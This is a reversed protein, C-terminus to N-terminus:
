SKLCCTKMKIGEWVGDEWGVSFNSMLDLQWHADQKNLEINQM